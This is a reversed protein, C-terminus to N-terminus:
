RGKIYEIGIANEFEEYSLKMGDYGFRKINNFLQLRKGAAERPISYLRESRQSGSVVLVGDRM